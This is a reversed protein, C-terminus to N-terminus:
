GECIAAPQRTSLDVRKRVNPIIKVSGAGGARREGLQFKKM